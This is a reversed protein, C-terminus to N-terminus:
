EILEVNMVNKKLESIDGCLDTITRSLKVPKVEYM